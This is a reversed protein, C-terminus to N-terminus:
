NNPAGQAIWARITNASFTSPDTCSSGGCVAATPDTGTNAGPLPDNEYPMQSGCWNSVGTTGPTDTAMSVAPNNMVCTTLACMDGDIKHMLYSQEPNGPTVFPMGTIELPKLPGADAGGDPDGVLDRYVIPGPDATMCSNVSGAGADFHIDCGLFIGLSNIVTPGPDYHCSSSLGCSREFLPLVDQSFSVTPTTLDVGADVPSCSGSSGSSGGSGSGSSSGSSTGGSSSSSSSSADEAGSM